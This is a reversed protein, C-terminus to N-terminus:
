LDGSRRLHNRVNNMLETIIDYYGALGRKNLEVFLENLLTIYTVECNESIINIVIEM